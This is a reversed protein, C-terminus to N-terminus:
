CVIGSTIRRLGDATHLLLAGDPGIGDCQGSWVENGQQVHIHKGTLYCYHRFRELPAEGLQQFTDLRNLLHTLIERLVSTLDFTGDAADALSIARAVVDAPARHFSNNVNVGIGLVTYRGATEVLIGCVKRNGLYVDNPWKLSFLGERYLAHLAECVAVGAVLALRPDSAQSTLLSFTLSGSASWWRNAGRGRGATQVATLFLTPLARQEATRLAWANTSDVEPQFELAALGPVDALTALQFPNEDAAHM